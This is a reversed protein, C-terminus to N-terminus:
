TLSEPGYHIFRISGQLDEEAELLADISQTSESSEQIRSEHELSSRDADTTSAAQVGAATAITGWRKLLGLTASQQYLNHLQNLRYLIQEQVHAKRKTEESSPSNSKNTAGELSAVESALSQAQLDIEQEFVQHLCPLVVPLLLTSCRSDSIGRNHLEENALTIALVYPASDGPLTAIFAAVFLTHDDLTVGVKQYLECIREFPEMREPGTLPSHLLTIAALSTQFSPDAGVALLKQYTTTYRDVVVAADGILNGLQTALLHREFGNLHEGAAGHLLDVVEFLRKQKQNDDAGLVEQKLNALLLREPEPFNPLSDASNALAAIER